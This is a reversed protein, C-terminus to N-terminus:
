WWTWVLSPAPTCVGVSHLGPPLEFVAPSLIQSKVIKLLVINPWESKAIWHRPVNKEVRYDKGGATIYTHSLNFCKDFKVSYTILENYTHIYTHSLNFCKDIRILESWDQDIRILESWNQDIRILELWNQDPHFIIM